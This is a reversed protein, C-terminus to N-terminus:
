CSQGRKSMQGGHHCDARAPTTRSRAGVARRDRSRGDNTPYETTIERVPSTVICRSGCAIEMRLGVGIWAVKLVSGGLGSGNIRCVTSRPFRRGGQLVVTSGRRVVIRYLSHRTRVLLTTLPKLDDLNVGESAFAEHIVDDSAFTALESM